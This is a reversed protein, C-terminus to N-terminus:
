SPSSYQCTSLRPRNMQGPGVRKSTRLHEYSLSGARRGVRMLGGRARSVVGCLMTVHACQDQAWSGLEVM